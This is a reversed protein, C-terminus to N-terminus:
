TGRNEQTATTYLTFRMPTSLGGVNITIAQQDQISSVIRKENLRIALALSREVHQWEVNGLERQLEFYILGPHTPLVGPPVSAYQFKLGAQGILFINDVHDSSGVKMDLGTTLLQRCQEAALTSQVGVFLRRHSELWAPELAVQMRLGAGVFPREDYEPEVVSDLLADLHLKAQWFCTGLDDHDYKPLEPPRRRSGFIALTGVLRCLETYVTLPRLGQAFALVGFLAYAENMTRLQEFLLRDGQGQSDFTKNGSIIRSSLQEIKRGLRDYTPQLVETVLPKWADCGLLPPIYSHDLQPAGEARDARQLRVLPLVEYGSPDQDSFLLRLNLRRVQLAQSNIGTNEDELPQEEVLYRVLGPEGGAVAANARALQLVPVALYVTVAPARALAAKLDCAPLVGDEPVSVLTADHLRAQLSRIVLRNNALADEDLEIKRLGWTYHCDWRANRDILQEVHRQSAQFHQPRLFMGLHWHVGQSGM